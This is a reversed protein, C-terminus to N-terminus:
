GAGNGIAPLRVTFEAGQMPESRVKISGGHAEVIKKVLSLGLGTGHVQDQVARAGRYFPDFIHKQEEAPIGPGRDAVRIEVEPQEDRGARCVTVGIWRDDGSGYKAANALLNELAHRLALPDGLVQPLDADVRKEMTCGASEPTLKAANIAADVVPEVDIPEREQIVRGANAGAFRMVQEVLDTLRGSEQQILAGYREVQQPNAALKGRLNYAATHIVTLPTKLEHSVGAVFEMQLEALREARRTYRILAGLTVAVMLLVGATVAMSRWRAQAVVAELSGARHRVFLTWRGTELSPERGGGGRPGGRRPEVPLLFLPISGDATQVLDAGLDPDSRYLVQGALGGAMVVAQYDSGLHRQLLEPLREDRLYATDPDYILWAVEHRGADPPGGGRGHRGGAPRQSGEFLPVEWATGSQPHPGGRGHREQGDHEAAAVFRERMSDWEPPWEAAKWSGSAADFLELSPGDEHPIALAIRAFLHAARDVRPSERFQTAFISAASAANTYTAPVLANAASQIEQNFDRSVAALSAQLSSRLREHAAISVETIARYQLIGLVACLAFLPYVFLWAGWTKRRSHRPREARHNM